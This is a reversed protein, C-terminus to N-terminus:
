GSFTLKPSAKKYPVPQTRTLCPVWGMGSNNDTRSKSKVMSKPTILSSEKRESIIFSAVPGSFKVMNKVKIPSLSCFVSESSVKTLAKKVISLSFVPRIGLVCYPFAPAHGWYARGDLVLCSNLMTGGRLKIGNVICYSLSNLQLMDGQLFKM